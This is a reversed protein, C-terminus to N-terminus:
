LRIEMGDFAVEWGAAMVAAREPSDDLLIPNSNNIHIFVKRPVRLNEFAAMSGDKGAISMHGMRKGTKVGIGAEIMEEDHWLTGDFLVLPAGALRGALTETMEACGPIYYFHRGTEMSEVRLGVTDGPMTGFNAGADADELYLAVKGPVSFMEISLGTPNGDRAALEFRQELAAERREVLDQNLVNFVSNRGLAAHVRATAYIALPSSERLSLLGAVHDIDGNTLVVGSIPSHRRGHKPHLAPNAGIQQRLDPSANLLFWHDGDATVALSSQTRPAAEPAGARARQCIKCNCNWQPFGGGAASGLVLVRLM